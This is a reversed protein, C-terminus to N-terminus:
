ALRRFGHRFNTAIMWSPHEYNTVISRWLHAGADMVSSQGIDGVCTAFYFNEQVLISFTM